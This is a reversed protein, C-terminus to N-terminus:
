LGRNRNMQAVARGRRESVKLHVGHKCEKGDPCFGAMYFECIKRQVHRNGYRPGKECFGRNYYECLPLRSEEKVHLYLCEDGNQCYGNKADPLEERAKVLALTMNKFLRVELDNPFLRPRPGTAVSSATTQEAPVPSRQLSTARKPTADHLFDSAM